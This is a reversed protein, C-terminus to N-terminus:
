PAAYTAGPTAENTAAAADEYPAVPKKAKRAQKHRNELRSIDLWYKCPSAARNPRLQKGKCAESNAAAYARRHGHRRCRHHARRHARSTKGHIDPKVYVTQGGEIYRVRWRLWNNRHHPYIRRKARIIPRTKTNGPEPTAKSNAKSTAAANAAFTAMSGSFLCNNLLWGHIFSSM